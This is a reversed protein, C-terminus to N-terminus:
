LDVIGGILTKKDLAGITYGRDTAAVIVADVIAAIVTAASAGVACEVTGWELDLDASIMGGCRAKGSYAVKDGSEPDPPGALVRYIVVDAM